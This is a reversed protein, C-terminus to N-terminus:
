KLRERKALDAMKEEFSRISIRLDGYEAPIIGIFKHYIKKVSEGRDKAEELVSRLLGDLEPPFQPKRRSQLKEPPILEFPDKPVHEPLEHTFIRIPHQDSPVELYCVLIPDEIFSRKATAKPRQEGSELLDTDTACDDPVLFDAVDSDDEDDGSTEEEESDLIEVDDLEEDEWEEDSDVEYDLLGSKKFPARLSIGSPRANQNTGFFAPRYNDYFQILKIPPRSRKRRHFYRSGPICLRNRRRCFLNAALRTNDKVFFPQFTTTPKFSTDRVPTQQTEAAGMRSSIVFFDDLRKQVASRDPTTSAPIPVKPFGNGASLRGPRRKVPSPADSRLPRKPDIEPKPQASGREQRRALLFGQLAPPLPELSQMEWLWVSDAYSQRKMIANVAEKLVAATLWPKQPFLDLQVPQSPALFKYLRAVLRSLESSQEECLLGVLDAFQDLSTLGSQHFAALRFIVFPHFEFSLLGGDNLQVKRASIPSQLAPTSADDVRDVGLM